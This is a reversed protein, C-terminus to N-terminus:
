DISVAEGISHDTATALDSVKVVSVWRAVQVLKFHVRADSRSEFGM